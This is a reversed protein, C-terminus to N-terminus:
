DLLGKPPSIVLTSDKLNIEKVVTNIMPILFEKKGEKVILLSQSIRDILDEVHGIYKGDTTYVRLGILQFWYYENEETEALDSIKVMVSCGRIREADDVSKVGELKVIVSEKELKRGIIKFELPKEEGQKQIFVRELRLLNELRRSFPVIKVEGSLGHTKSVKGFHILGM